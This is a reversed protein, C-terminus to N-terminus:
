KDTSSARPLNANPTESISLKRDSRMRVMMGPMLLSKRLKSVAERPPKAQSIAEHLDKMTASMVNKSAHMHLPIAIPDHIYQDIQRGAADVDIQHSRDVHQLSLLSLIVGCLIDAAAYM